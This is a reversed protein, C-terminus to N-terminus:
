ENDSPPVGALVRLLFTPAIRHTYETWKNKRGSLRDNNQRVEWDVRIHRPSEDFFLSILFSSNECAQSCRANWEVLEAIFSRFDMM